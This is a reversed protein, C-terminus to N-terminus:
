GPHRLHIVLHDVCTRIIEFTEQYFDLHMGIPDDLDLAESAPEPELEFTRILRVPVDNALRLRSLEKVHRHAMPIVLDAANLMAASVGRSRHKSLDVGHKRLTLVAEESAPAGEIGLTGASDVVIHTLGARAARHRLYAEAM